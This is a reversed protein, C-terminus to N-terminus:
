CGPSVATITTKWIPQYSAKYRLQGPAPLTRGLDLWSYGRLTLDAALRRTLAHGVALDARDPDMTALLSYCADGRDLLVMAAAVVGDLRLTAVFSEEPGCHQMVELLGARGADPHVVPHGAWRRRHLQQAESFGCALDDSTTSRAYEVRGQATLLTWTRERRAHDRRTARSMAAFDIPLPITACPVTSHQWITQAALIRGLHSDSPLDPMVVYAERAADVLYRAFAAAVAPRCSGPGVARIYEAVPSGLPRIRTGEEREDRELALAAVPGVTPDEAVLVLPTATPPLMVAWGRLWGPAQYGTAATDQVYLAAWEGNLFRLAPAGELVRVSM